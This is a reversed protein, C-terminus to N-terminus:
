IVNGLTSPPSRPVNNLIPPPSRLFNGLTHSCEKPFNSLTHSSESFNCLTHCQGHTDAQCPKCQSNSCHHPSQEREQSSSILAGHCSTSDGTSTHTRPEISGHAQQLLSTHCSNGQTTHHLSIGSEIAQCKVVMTKRPIPPLPSCSCLGAHRSFM